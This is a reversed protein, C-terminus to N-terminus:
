GSLGYLSQLPMPALFRREQGAPIIRTLSDGGMRSATGAVVRSRGAGVAIRAGTRRLMEAQLQRLEGRLRSPSLRRAPIHQRLWRARSLWNRAWRATHRTLFTIHGIQNQLRGAVSPAPFANGIFLGM